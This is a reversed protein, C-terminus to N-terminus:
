AAPLTLVQGPYIRNPDGGIVAKNAEYIATWKGEDGYFRRAIACLSDGKVVTYAQATEPAPASEAARAEQVTAEPPSAGQGEQVITVTKTGYKRYEKLKVKVNLDLGNKADETVTYSELSVKINTSFLTKGSPRARSVIFQFPKKGKKLAELYSTFYLANRFGSKYVAFPYPIQPLMFEFEIDKLGPQKLISVEGDNILSVTKDQSNVKVQIKSPAVPLLCKKLYVHYGNQM